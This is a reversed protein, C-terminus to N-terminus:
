PLETVHEPFTVGRDGQGHSFTISTLVAAQKYNPVRLMFGVVQGSQLAKQLVATGAPANAAAVIPYGQDDGQVFMCCTRIAVGDAGSAHAANALNTVMLSRTARLTFGCIAEDSHKAYCGEPRAEYGDAAKFASSVKVPGFSRYTLTFTHSADSQARAAPAAGGVILLMAALVPGRRISKIM